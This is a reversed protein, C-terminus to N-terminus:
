GVYIGGRVTSVAQVEQKTFQNKNDYCYFNGHISTPAGQLSTLKNGPCYFSGGVSSPAGELSTLKNYGCYFHGRVLTPAGELSTLNNYSCYFNGSCKYKIQRFEKPLETLGLNSLDISKFIFVGNETTYDLEGRGFDFILKQKNLGEQLLEKVLM